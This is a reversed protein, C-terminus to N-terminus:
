RATGVVSRYPPLVGSAAAQALTPAGADKDSRIPEGDLPWDIGIEPDLAQIDIMSGPVYEEGCLYNMVTDDTLALFAHGLGDGLYVGIGSGAEQLTTDHAGFTPSGVRLDVVVDLAAGRVCTVLKTQGPPETTGHIGRLTGKRSVSYNTQAVRFPHGITEELASRRWAEFFSGRRDALPEPVIRFAGPVATEIIRM